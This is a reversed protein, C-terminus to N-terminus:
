AVFNGCARAGLNDHRFTSFALGAVAPRALLAAEARERWRRAVYLRVGHRTVVPGYDRDLADALPPPTLDDLYKRAYGYGRHM